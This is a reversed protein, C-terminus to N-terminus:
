SFPVRVPQAQNTITTAPASMITVALYPTIMVLISEVSITTAVGTTAAPISLVVETVEVMLTEMTTRMATVVMQVM